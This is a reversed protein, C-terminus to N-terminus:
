KERIRIFVAREYQLGEATTIQCSVKYRINNTGLSLRITAVTTTNTQSVKQLGNVVQANSVQTKTGDAADIFWIVSTITDDDLFRSWDINYDVIEDKDKDPWKYSM